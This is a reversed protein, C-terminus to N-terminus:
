LWFKNYRVDEIMAQIRSKIEATIRENQEEETGGLVKPQFPEGISVCYTGRHVNLMRYVRGDVVTTIGRHFTMSHRPAVLAVPLIPAGSARYIKAAGSYFKGLEFPDFMDGEPAIYVAEGKSLYKAAQSVVAKRNEPMANIQETMDLFPQFLRYAYAPGVVFHIPEKLVPLV